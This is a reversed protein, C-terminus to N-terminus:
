IFTGVIVGSGAPPNGTGHLVVTGQYFTWEAIPRPPHNNWTKHTPAVFSKGKFFYMIGGVAGNAAHDWTAVGEPFIQEFLAPLEDYGYANEADETGRVDAGTFFNSAMGLVAHMAYLAMIEAPDDWPAYMDDGQNDRPGVNPGAPEMMWFPKWFDRWKGEWNVLGFTRKLCFEPPQRSTHQSCAEGHKSTQYLVDPEESLGAGQMFIVDPLIRRGAAIVRGMRAVAEDSIGGPYNQPPENVIEVGAVIVSGGEEACIGLVREHLAIEDREVPVIIQNDGFCVIMRLKRKRHERCNTRWLADFDPWGQIPPGYGAPRMHGSSRDFYWPTFDVPYVGFNPAWWDM